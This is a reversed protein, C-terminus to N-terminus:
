STQKCSRSRELLFKQPSLQQILVTLRYPSLHLLTLLHLLPPPLHFLTFLHLSTSSHHPQLLTHLSHTVLSACVCLHKFQWHKSLNLLHLFALVHISRPSPSSPPLLLLLFPPLLSSSPHASRSQSSSTARTRSSTNPMSPCLEPRTLNPWM